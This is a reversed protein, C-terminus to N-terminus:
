DPKGNINIRLGDPFEVTLNTYGLTGSYAKAGSSFEWRTQGTVVFMEGGDFISKGFEGLPDPRINPPDAILNLIKAIDSLAARSVAM